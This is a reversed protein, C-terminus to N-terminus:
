SSSPFPPPSPPLSKAASDARGALSFFLVLLVEPVNRGIPARFRNGSLTLSILLSCRGCCCGTAHPTLRVVVVVCDVLMRIRRLVMVGGVCQTRSWVAIPPRFGYDADFSAVRVCSVSFWMATAAVVSDGRGSRGRGRSPVVM